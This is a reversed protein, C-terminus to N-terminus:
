KVLKFAPSVALGSNADRYSLYGSAYVCLVFYANGLYASSKWQYIASSKNIYNYKILIPYTAWAKFTGNTNLNSQGDALNKYYQWATGEVGGTNQLGSFGDVNSEAMTPIFVKDYFTITANGYIRTNGVITRKTAKIKNVFDSDYNALFGVATSYNSPPRDFIHQQQYFGTTTANLYQRVYSYYYNNDGLVVCQYDNLYIGGKEACSELYTASSGIETKSGMTGLDTGGSGETLTFEMTPTTDTANAFVQMKANEMTANYANNPRLFYGLPITQDTTFQYTKNNNGGWNDNDVKFHYTGTPMQSATKAMFEPTDFVIGDIAYHWQLTLAHKTTEVGNELVVADSHDVVDHDIHYTTGGSTWPIDFNDGVYFYDSAVGDDILDLIEDFNLEEEELLGVAREVDKIRLEHRTLTTNVESFIEVLLRESWGNTTSPIVSKSDIINANVVEFTTTNGDTFTITYTDVNGSTATKQISAIGNGTQGRDGRDGKDGKEAIVQWYTTNTPLVGVAVDDKALYSSGNYTVVDLKLYSLTSDYEGKNTIIVKGLQGFITESM